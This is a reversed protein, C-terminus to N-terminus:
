QRRELRGSKSQVWRMDAMDLKERRRQRRHRRQACGESHYSTITAGLKQAVFGTNCIRRVNGLRRGFGWFNRANAAVCLCITATRCSRGCIGEKPTEERSEPRRPSM